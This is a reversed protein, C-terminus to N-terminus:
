LISKLTELSINAGSLIIVIKKGRYQEANKIFAALAVASAGEILMRHMKIIGIIAEKIEEESVLVYNDVYRQCLEFTIADQVMGGATADSLTPQTQIEIIKGAKISEAFVPSNEPLCGIIDTHPSHEKIYGAIGSILGGGGVVAFIADIEDLQQSIEIGITGQGAVVQLDDYPSIYTM